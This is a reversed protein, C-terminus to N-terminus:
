RALPVDDFSRVDVGSGDARLQRLAATARHLIEEADLASSAFDPVAYYGARVRVPHAVGETALPIAELRAKMREALRTAGDTSTAPAIIAFELEGLRGFADSARGATRCIEAVQEAVERTLREPVKEDPSAATVEAALAVCALSQRRRQAEAGIERARRALGRENYLGTASDVLVQAQGHQSERRAELFSDLKLLLAEGDLPQTLFDWAGARLAALRQARSAQGSTTIIIPTAPAIVKEARLQECIEIGDVDPLRMDVILVDIPSAAAMALAQRATHARLVRFGRPSLISELSRASWEHDNVLLAIPQRPSVTSATM